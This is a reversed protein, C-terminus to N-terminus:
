GSDEGVLYARYDKTIVSEFISYGCAHSQRIVGMVDNADMAQSEYTKFADIDLLFSEEQPADKSEVTKLALNLQMDNTPLTARMDASTFLHDRRLEMGFIQGFFRHLPVLGNERAFPIANIYRWGIRNVHLVGILRVFEELLSDVVALFAEHGPYDRSYYSFSHVAVQVGHSSLDNEFRYHQLAPAVGREAQPVMLQPFDGRITRHFEPRISEVKLDGRFRIETAVNILPQNPYLPGNIM